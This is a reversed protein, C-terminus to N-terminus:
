IIKKAIKLANESDSSVIMLVFNGCIAIRANDLMNGYNDDPKLSKLSNLRAAFLRATDEAANRDACYVVAFECPHPLTSVFLACDLWERAIAPLAGNGYLSSILSETLHNEKNESLSYVKGAPLGIELETLANVIDVCPIMEDSYLCSCLSLIFSLALCLSIAARFLRKKNNM